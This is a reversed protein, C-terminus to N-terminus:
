KRGRLASLWAEYSKARAAWTHDEKRYGPRWDPPVDLAADIAEGMSDVDGPSYYFGSNGLATYNEGIRCTVIPKEYMIYMYTKSPCRAWDTITDQLPSVFVDAARMWSELEDDPVRGILRIVEQLGAADIQNQLQERAPGRGTLVCMWDTRKNRLKILASVIDMVGYAPYLNGTYMILRSSAIGWGANRDTGGVRTEKSTPLAAAYPLYLINRRLHLTQSTGRFFRELYQSAVVVNRYTLVSLLELVQQAKRRVFSTGVFSSELEAHDIIMCVSRALPPILANRWGLGCLHVFDFERSKLLRNKQRRESWLTAKKYLLSKCGPIADLVAANDPSDEMCITVDHGARILPQALGFARKMNAHKSIVSTTVFCIRMGMAGNLVAPGIEATAKTIRETRM